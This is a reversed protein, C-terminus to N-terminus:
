IVKNNQYSYVVMYKELNEVTLNQRRDSLVHKYFSFTREVECSTIPAYKFKCITDPDMDVPKSFDGNLINNIAQLKTFGPNNKLVTDLKENVKQKVLSNSASTIKLKNKVDYIINVSEELSLSRNELKEIALAIFTFNSNVTALKNSITPDKFINICKEVAISCNPDFGLIVDKIGDYNNAVFSACNLWTGWRTLVPEPPLPIGPLKEKYVQVRLPAKLFVKKISSLLSNIAPFELRVTEAVRNLGHALCTCHILSPFFIQLNNAAKVMYPAADSLMLLVRNVPVKDPLFLNILSDNVFRSITKNNTQPLEKLSVLYGYSPKDGNLAGVILAAIYRGKSDTTEDVSFWIPLNIIETKINQMITQYNEEVYKKRLTSSSPLNINEMKCNTNLFSRLVPNDLKHLPINCSLFVNCLEKSFVDQSSNSPIPNSLLQQNFNNARKKNNSVHLATQLHQDM